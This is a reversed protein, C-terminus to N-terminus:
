SALLARRSDLLKNLTLYVAIITGLAAMGSPLRASFEHIGFLKYFIMMVWYIAPPKQFWPLGSLHPFLVDGNQMMEKAVQAYRPEDSGLFPLFASPIAFLALALLLLIRRM